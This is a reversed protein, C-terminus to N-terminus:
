ASLIAPLRSLARGFVAPDDVGRAVVLSGQLTVLAEEARLRADSVRSGAQEAVKALADILRRFIRAITEGRVTTGGAHSGAARTSPM